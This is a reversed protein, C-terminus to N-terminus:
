PISPGGLCRRVGRHYATHSALTSLNSVSGKWACFPTGYMTGACIKAVRCAGGKKPPLGQLATQALYAFVSVFNCLGRQPTGSGHLRHSYPLSAALCRGRSRWGTMHLLEETRDQGAETEVGIIGDHRWVAAVSSGGEKHALQGSMGGRIHRQLPLFCPGGPDEGEVGAAARTQEVHRWFEGHVQSQIHKYPHRVGLMLDEHRSGQSGPHESFDAFARRKAAQDLRSTTRWSPWCLLTQETQHHQQACQMRM